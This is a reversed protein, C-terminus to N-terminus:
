IVNWENYKYKRSSEKSFRECHLYEFNFQFQWHSRFCFMILTELLSVEQFRSASSGYM